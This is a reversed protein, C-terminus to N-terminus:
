GHNETCWIFNTEHPHSASRLPVVVIVRGINRLYEFVFLTGSGRIVFISLLNTSETLKKPHIPGRLTEIVLEVTLNRGFDLCPQLSHVIKLRQECRKLSSTKKDQVFDRKPQLTFAAFTEQRDTTGAVSSPSPLLPSFSLILAFVFLLFFFPPSLYSSPPSFVFLLNGVWLVVDLFLLFIYNFRDKKGGNGWRKGRAVDPTSNRRM